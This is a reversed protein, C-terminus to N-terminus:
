IHFLVTFQTDTHTHTDVDGGIFIHVEWGGLRRVERIYM